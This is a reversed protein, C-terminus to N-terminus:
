PIANTIDEWAKTYISEATGVSYLYQAKDLIDDPPYILPNLWVNQPLQAKDLMVTTPIELNTTALAAWTKDLVMNIYLEAAKKQPPLTFSPICFNYLQLLAGDQPFAYNTEVNVQQMNLFERSFGQALMTQSEALRLGYDLSNLSDFSNASNIILDKADLIERENITNPSHGLHILAAGLVERPHNLLTTHGYAPSDPSLRFLDGWTTPALGQNNIYGIGITNYSFPACFQNDADYTLDRFRPDINNLNPINNPDFPALYNLARLTSAVYSTAVIMAIEEPPDNILALLEEDTTYYRQVININTQEEFESLINDDLMNQPTYAVIQVPLQGTYPIIQIPTAKPDTPQGTGCAALSFGLISFTYLLLAIKRITM